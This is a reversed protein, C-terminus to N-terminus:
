CGPIPCTAKACGPPTQPVLLTPHASPLATVATFWEAGAWSQWLSCLSNLASCVCPFSQWSSFLTSIHLSLFFFSHLSYSREPIWCGESELDLGQSLEPLQGGLVSPASWPM